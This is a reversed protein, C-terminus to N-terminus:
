LPLPRFVSNNQRLLRSWDPDDNEKSRRRRRKKKPSDSAEVIDPTKPKNHILNALQKRKGSCISRADRTTNGNNIHARKNMMKSSCFHISCILTADSFPCASQIRM